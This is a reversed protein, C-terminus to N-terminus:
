ILHNNVLYEAIQVANTSAGKRLNDSVIWLNLSNEQSFDRRIRGVFVADKEKALIPMPYIKNFVDDQVIVGKTQNLIEVINNLKFDHYFEVNVSESHGSDVPVRVATATIKIDESLIKKTENVLKLEEKTYLNEEFDDCHPLCNKDIQYPYKKEGQINKRENELQEIAKIGSGTVSQYTSIVLRKIKYKNHLQVLAVLMQITSCNPNAIIKDNKTLLHANIEPIILKKSKDTRWASSNDIVYSGINAFKEAWKKSITAGASFLVINPKYNLAKEISIITYIKNQFSIKRGVSKESAVLYLESIFFKREDLIELIKRGVLGTAGIIALKM